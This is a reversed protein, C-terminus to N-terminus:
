RSTNLVLRTDPRRTVIMLNMKKNEARLGRGPLLRQVTEALDSKLRWVSTIPVVLGLAVINALSFKRPQGLVLEIRLLPKSDLHKKIHCM